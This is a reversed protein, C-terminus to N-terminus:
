VRKGNVTEERGVRIASLLNREAIRALWVM